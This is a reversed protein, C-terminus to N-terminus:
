LCTCLAAILFQSSAWVAFRCHNTYSGGSFAVHEQGDIFIIWKEPAFAYFRAPREKSQIFVSLESGIEEAVFPLAFPFFAHCFGAAAAVFLIAAFTITETAHSYWSCSESDWKQFWVWERFAFARPMGVRHGKVTGM